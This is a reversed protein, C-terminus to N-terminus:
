KLSLKGFELINKLLLFGHPTPDVLQLRPVLRDAAQIRRPHSLHALNACIDNPLPPHISLSAVKLTFQRTAKDALVAQHQINLFRKPAVRCGLFHLCLGLQFVLGGARQPSRDLILRQQQHFSCL